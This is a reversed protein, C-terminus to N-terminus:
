IQRIVLYARPRRAERYTSSRKVPSKNSKGASARAAPPLLNAFCRRPCAGRVTFVTFFFAVARFPGAGLDVRRTGALAFAAFALTLGADLGAALGFVRGM